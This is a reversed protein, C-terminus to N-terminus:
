TITFEAWVYNEKNNIYVKKVIRYKGNELIGYLDSWDITLEIENTSNLIYGEATFSNNDKITEINKWEGNEQKDIRYWKDYGFSNNYKIVITASSPTLTEDKIEIDIKDDVNGNNNIDNKINLNQLNLGNNKLYFIGIIIFLIVFIILFFILKRNM